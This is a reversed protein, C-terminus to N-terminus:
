SITDTKLDWTTKDIFDTAPHRKSTNYPTAIFYTNNPKISIKNETNPIALEANQNKITGSNTPTMMIMYNRSSNAKINILTIM